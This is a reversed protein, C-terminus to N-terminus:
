CWKKIAHCWYLALILSISWGENNKIRRLKIILRKKRIGSRNRDRGRKKRQKDFRTIGDEASGGVFDAVQLGNPKEFKKKLDLNM